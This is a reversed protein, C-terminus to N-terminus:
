LDKKSFIRLAIWMPVVAWLLMVFLSIILGLQSNFVQKFIAGTYGMLASIDMKLLIMVRGLDVPNLATFVLMIKELPYDNFAFLVTLVLGDYILSFYFWLMLAAGIGKAKDRTLVSALFALSVFIFTLLLGVLILMLAKDSGNFILVPIGVGALFAYALSSAVGAYESLLIRRRSLPQSLLLEIFEYSNYFHITSFIISVLPVVILMINLLSLIGKNPDPELNLFSLSILLLFATYAIVIKNRVIDYIVYKIVKNMTNPLYLM